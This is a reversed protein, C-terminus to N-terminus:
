LDVGMHQCCLEGFGGGCYKVAEGWTVKIGEIQNADTM